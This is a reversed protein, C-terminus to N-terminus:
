TNNDIPAQTELPPLEAATEPIQTETHSRCVPHCQPCPPTLHSNM